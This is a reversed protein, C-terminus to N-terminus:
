FIRQFSQDLAEQDMGIGSDEVDLELWQQGADEVTRVVLAVRGQQTFKFANHLLNFLIQRLRTSDTEIWV